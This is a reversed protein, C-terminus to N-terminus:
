DNMAVALTSLDDSLQHAGREGEAKLPDIKRFAARSAVLWAASSGGALEAHFRDECVATAAAVVQRDVKSSEVKSSLTPGDMGPAIM